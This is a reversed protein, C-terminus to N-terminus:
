TSSLVATWGIALSEGNSMTKDAALRSASALTGTTGGRTNTSLLACGRVTVSSATAFTFVVKGNGSGDMNSISAASAAAYPTFAPRTSNTYGETTSTIETANAAFNAATWSSAVSVNGSFLALYWATIPTEGGFMVGLMKTLGQIPLMNPDIEDPGGNVSLTYHCHALAKQEPFLIGGDDTAEWKHNRLARRFEPAHRALDQVLQPISM